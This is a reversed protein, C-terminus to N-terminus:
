LPNNEYRKVKQSILEMIEQADKHDRLREFAEKGLEVKEVSEGFQHSATSNFSIATKVKLGTLVLLEMPCFGGIIMADPFCVSYDTRERPHSKIILKKEEYGIALAKYISIKESETILGDESFPQTMLIVERGSSLLADTGGPLFLGTIEQKEEASRQEWLRRIDIVEARGALAEPIPCIGTLYIKGIKESYGYDPYMPGFLLNKCANSRPIIRLDPDYIYNILGDEIGTVTDFFHLFYHNSVLYLPTKKYLFALLRILLIDHLMNVAKRLGSTRDNALMLYNIRKKLHQPVQPIATFLFLTEETKCPKVLLYLFLTYAGSLYFLSKYRKNFVQLIKM